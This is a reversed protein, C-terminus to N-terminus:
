LRDIENLANIFSDEYLPQNSWHASARRRMAKITEPKDLLEIIKDASDAGSIFMSSYGDQCYNPIEGVPTVLPILGLQMAEIVSVCMGEYHSTQLFLCNKSAVEALDERSLVGKFNVADILGKSAVINELEAVLPSPPGYIEFSASPYDRQIHSFIDIALGLNKQEVIRGWFIFKPELSDCVVDFSELVFSIVRRKKLKILSSREVSSSISDAWVEISLLAALRTFFYDLLHEDRTNHIFTVLKTSPWLVKVLVGVFCSRWLSVVLIPPRREAISMAKTFLRWFGATKFGVADEANDYITEISLKQQYKPSLLKSAASEVGGIGFYPILYCSVGGNAGGFLTSISYEWM